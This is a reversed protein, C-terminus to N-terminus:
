ESTRPAQAAPDHNTPLHRSSLARTPATVLVAYFRVPRKPGAGVPSSAGRRGPRLSDTTRPELLACLGSRGPVWPRPRAGGAPGSRTRQARNWFLACAAEARCGRALFAGRRGPRLSDTTRPELLACLGSPGAGWPRPRAGGAPGSRTRQAREKFSVLIRMKTCDLSGEADSDLTFDGASLNKSQNERSAERRVPNPFVLLNEFGLAQEVSLATQRQGSWLGFEVVVVEPALVEFAYLLGSSLWPVWV